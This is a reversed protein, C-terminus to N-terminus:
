ATPRGTRHAMVIVKGGICQVDFCPLTVTNGMDDTVGIYVPTRGDVGKFPSSPGASLMWMQVMSPLDDRMRDPPICMFLNMGVQSVPRM